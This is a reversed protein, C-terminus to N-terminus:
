TGSFQVDDFLVSPVRSTGYRHVDSAAETYREYLDFLNGAINMEGVSQVPEGRELLTGRIGFSFDGTTSNANGGLFSEVRIVSPFGAAIALPARPGPPLVLNSTGGTTPEMDLKRSFYQNVFFCQLVGGQVLSRRSTPFGDGDFLRSGAGRHIHPEDWLELSSAAVRQGLKEAMCSRGYHLASGALPSLLVGLIRGVARNELLMPYRGSPVPRAGLRRMARDWAEDAVADVSPLDEAHSASYGTSAEPLKDGEDELTLTAGFGFSTGRSHGVFGNSFVVASLARSDGAYATTSRLKARDRREVLAQEFRAVWQRRTSSELKEQDDSWDDLEVGQAMGCAEAPPLARAPDPELLRTAAVARRIFVEVAEPRMDSTGHSSYRDDVLLRLGLSSSRSETAQELQGERQSLEVSVGSSASAAAESAGATLAMRVAQQAIEVMTEDRM